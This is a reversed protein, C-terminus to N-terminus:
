INESVAAWHTSRWRWKLLTFELRCVEYLKGSQLVVAALLLLLQTRLGYRGDIKGM